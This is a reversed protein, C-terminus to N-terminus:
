VNTSKLLDRVTSQAMGMEKAIAHNSWGADNHLAIIRNKQPTDWEIRKSTTEPKVDEEM